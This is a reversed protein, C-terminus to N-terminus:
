HQQQRAETTSTYVRQNVYDELDALRYRVNRGIKCFRPGTGNWRQQELTSPQINLFQAAETTTLLASILAIAKTTQDTAPPPAPLPETQM